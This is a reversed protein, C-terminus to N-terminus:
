SHPVYLPSQDSSTAAQAAPFILCLRQVNRTQRKANRAEPAREPRVAIEVGVRPQLGPGTDTAVEHRSNGYHLIKAVKQEALNRTAQGM